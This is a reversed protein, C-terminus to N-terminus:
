HGLLFDWLLNDFLEGGQGVVDAKLTGLRERSDKGLAEALVLALAELLCHELVQARHLLRGGRLRRVPHEAAAAARGQVAGQDKQGQQLLQAAAGAPRAVHHAAQDEAGIRLRALRRAKPGAAHDHRAPGLQVQEVRAQSQGNGTGAALTHGGQGLGALPLHKALEIVSRRAPERIVHRGLLGFGGRDAQKTRQRRQRRPLAVQLVLQQRRCDLHAQRDVQLFAQVADPSRRPRFRVLLRRHLHPLLAHPQPAVEQRGVLSARGPRFQERQARQLAQGIRVVGGLHLNRWLLAEL